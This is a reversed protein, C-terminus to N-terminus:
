FRGSFDDLVLRCMKLHEVCDTGFLEFVFIFFSIGDLVVSIQRKLDELENSSAKATVLDAKTRELEDRLIELERQQREQQKRAIEIQERYKRSSESKRSAVQGALSHSVSEADSSLNEKRPRLDKDLNSKLRDLRDILAQQGQNKEARIAVLSEIQALRDLMLAATSNGPDPNGSNSAVVPRTEQGVQNNNPLSSLLVELLSDKPHGYYRVRLEDSNM